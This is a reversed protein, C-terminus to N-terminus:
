CEMGSFINICHFGRNWYGWGRRLILVMSGEIRVFRVGRKLILVMSGEIRVFRM